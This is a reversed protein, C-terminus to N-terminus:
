FVNVENLAAQNLQLEVVQDALRVGKGDRLLFDHAGSGVQDDLSDHPLDAGATLKAKFLHDLALLFPEEPCFRGALLFNLNKEQGLLVEQSLERVTFDLLVQLQTSRVCVNLFVPSVQDVLHFLLLPQLLREQVPCLGVQNVCVHATLVRVLRPEVRLGVPELGLLALAVKAAEHFVDALALVLNRM